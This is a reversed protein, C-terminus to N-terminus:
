DGYAKVPEIGSARNAASMTMCREYRGSVTRSTSFSWRCILVTTIWDIMYIGPMRAGHKRSQMNCHDHKWIKNINSVGRLAVPATPKIPGFIRMAMRLCGGLVGRSYSVHTDKDM